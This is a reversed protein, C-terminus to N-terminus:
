RKAIVIDGSFTRVNLTASGDGYTARMSRNNMGYRRGRPDRDRQNADGGITLPLDSRISGSFTNANLVFGAPNALILRVNGSHVNIDYAGGKNIAGAYEVSGNVSKVGLRDCTVDSVKVDGSVTSLDLTRVKVGRATVNGSISGAAMDGDTSVGDLSVNGSLSKALELKPTDSVAVDGSMTEARVVGRVGTVKLNGSLSKIEVAVSAPVTLTYDVSTHDSNGDRNVFNGEYDTRIDVRGPREDVVIRVSQLRSQNGRTRKVADISVEDGGGANVVIDGSLNSVSVRGDRGIRVKRSFRDTQEPGANRRGQYARALERRGDADRLQAQVRERVVIRPEDPAPEAIVARVVVRPEGPAPQATGVAATVMVMAAATPLFRTPRM